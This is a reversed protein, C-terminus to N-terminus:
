IMGKELYWEYAERIAVELPTVRYGLETTAKEASYPNSYEAALILEPTIVPRANSVAAVAEFSRAAAKALFFPVRITPARGGVIEATRKFAEKATLNEGALIYREGPRGREAAQIHGFIVDGVYVVNIWADLYFLTLGRKVERIIQGGHFHIDRAGVVVTPNVIVAPLGKAVASLVEQEAQYKSIKYPINFPWWNFETTEDVPMGDNRYGLSAVSSTHVLREIGLELSTEVVNRTGLVNVEYIVDRNKRWFSVIAATHFVTDCGGMAKKLSEKDRIDGIRHELDIGKIASLDSDQRRLIRVNYNEERLKLALGSGIFGTGGTVLINKM